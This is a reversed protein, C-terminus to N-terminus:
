TQKLLKNKRFRDHIDGSQILRKECVPGLGKALSESTTLKRHCKGCRGHNDITAYKAIVDPFDRRKWLWKFGDVAQSNEAIKAAKRSHLYNSNDTKITGMFRAVGDPDIYSVFWPPVKTFSKAKPCRLIRYTKGVGTGGSRVTFEARGALAFFKFHKINM